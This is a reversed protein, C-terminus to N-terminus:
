EEEVKNQINSDEVSNNYATYTICNNSDGKSGVASIFGLGNLREKGLDSLCCQVFFDSEIYAKRQAAVADPTTGFSVTKSLWDCFGNSKSKKEIVTQLKEMGANAAIPVAKSVLDILIDKAYIVAM